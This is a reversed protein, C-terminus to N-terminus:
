WAVQARGGGASEGTAEGAVRPPSDADLEAPPDRRSTIRERGETGELGRTAASAPAGVARHARRYLGVGRRLRAANAPAQHPACPPVQHGSAGSTKTRRAAVCPRLHNQRSFSTRARSASPNFHARMRPPPSSRLHADGLPSPPTCGAQWRRRRRPPLSLLVVQDKRSAVTAEDIPQPLPPIAFNYTGSPVPPQRILARACRTISNLCVNEGEVWGAAEKESMPPRVQAGAGCCWDCAHLVFVQLGAPSSAQYAHVSAHM